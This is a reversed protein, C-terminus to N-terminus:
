NKTCEPVIIENANIWTQVQALESNIMSSHYNSPNTDLYLITDDAFHISKLMTLSKNMDNIYLIFLLADLTSDQPVGVEVDMSYSRQQNVQVFHSRNSLFSRLWDM